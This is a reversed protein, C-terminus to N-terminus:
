LYELDCQGSRCSARPTGPLSICPLAEISCGKEDFSECYSNNVQEVQSEVSAVDSTAIALHAGCYVLCRPHYAAVVCESDEICSQNAGQIADLVESGAKERLEDCSLGNGSGCRSLSTLGVMASIYLTSQLLCLGM